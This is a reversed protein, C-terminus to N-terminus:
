WSSVEPNLCKKWLEAQITQNLGDWLKVVRNCESETGLMNYLKTLEFVYEKVTRDGQHCKRLKQHQKRHFDIPFCHNFLEAFFKDLKWQGLNLSVSRTYFDHAQGTMYHSIYQVRRKKLLHGDEVYTIAKTMFKNF